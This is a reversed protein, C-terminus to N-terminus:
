ILLRLLQISPDQTNSVYVGWFEEVSEFTIVEKLLDNWNDGQSMGTLLRITDIRADVFVCRAAPPSPSGCRGGTPLRTSSM